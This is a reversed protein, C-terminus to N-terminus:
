IRALNNNKTLQDSVIQWDDINWINTICPLYNDVNTLQGYLAINKKRKIIVMKLNMTTAIFNTFFKKGNKKCNKNQYYLLIRMKLVILKCKMSQSENMRSLSLSFFNINKKGTIFSLSKWVNWSSLSSSSLIKLVHSMSKTIIARFAFFFIFIWEWANVKM